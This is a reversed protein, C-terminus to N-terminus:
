AMIVGKISSSGGYWTTTGSATSFELWTYAHVGIGVTGVYTAFHMTEYSAGNSFRSRAEAQNITALTDDLGIGAIRSVGASTNITRVKLEVPIPDSEVGVVFNLQNATDANAQRFAATTYNWSSTAETRYMIRGVRNNYNWLFRKAQSDETTTTSTTNFTGLYRRTTAGSKVPIGDQYTLATARTTTNTWATLELTPVGSNSYCFVDYPRGSVLTGLPLSFENSTHIVWRTGDYLSILKGSLPTCYITTAGTVDAITVALGSTLTLRFDNMYANVGAVSGTGTFVTLQGNNGTGTITGGSNADRGLPM